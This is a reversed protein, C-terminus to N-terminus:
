TLLLLIFLVVAVNRIAVIYKSSLHKIILVKGEVLLGLLSNFALNLCRVYTSFQLAFKMKGLFPIIEFVVRM